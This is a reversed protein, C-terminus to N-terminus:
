GEVQPMPLALGNSKRKSQFSDGGKVFYLRNMRAKDEQNIGTVAVLILELGLDAIRSLLGRLTAQDRITGTLVSEGLETHTITLGEMWDSWHQDILGKVRIEVQKM